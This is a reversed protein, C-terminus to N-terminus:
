GPGQGLPHARGERLSWRSAWSFIIHDGLEVKLKTLARVIDKRLMRDNVDPIASRRSHGHAFVLKSTGRIIFISSLVRYYIADLDDPRPFWSHHILQNRGDLCLVHVTKLGSQNFYPALYGFLGDPTTLNTMAARYVQPLKM